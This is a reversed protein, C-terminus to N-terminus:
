AKALLNRKLSFTKYLIFWIGLTYFCSPLGYRLFLLFFGAKSSYSNFLFSIVSHSFICMFIFVPQHFDDLDKSRGFLYSHLHCTVSKSLSFVGLLGGMSLDQLLGTFFGTIICFVPSQGRCWFLLFILLFEPVVGQVKIFPVLTKQIVILCLTIVLRLLYNFIARKNLKIMIYDFVTSITLYTM